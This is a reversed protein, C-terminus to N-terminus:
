AGYTLKLEIWAGGDYDIAPSDGVTITVGGSLLDQITM